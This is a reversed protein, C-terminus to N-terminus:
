RTTGSNLTARPASNTNVAKPRGDASLACVGGGRSVARASEARRTTSGRGGASEASEVLRDFTRFPRGPRSESGKLPVMRKSVFVSFYLFRRHLEPSWACSLVSVPHEDFKRKGAIPASNENLEVPVIRSRTATLM